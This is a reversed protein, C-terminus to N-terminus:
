ELKLDNKEAFEEMVKREQETPHPKRKRRQSRDKETKNKGHKM